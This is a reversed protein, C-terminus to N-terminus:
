PVFDGRSRRVPEYSQLRKTEESYSISTFAGEKVVLLEGEWFAKLGEGYYVDEGHTKIMSSQPFLDGDSIYVRHLTDLWSSSVIYATSSGSPSRLVDSIQITDFGFFVLTRATVSVRHNLIQSDILLLVFGLLPIVVVKKSLNRGLFWLPILFVMSQFLPWLSNETFVRLTTVIAAVVCGTVM